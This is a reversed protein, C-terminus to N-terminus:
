QRNDRASPSAARGCRLLTVPHTSSALKGSPSVAWSVALRPTRRVHGDHRDLQILLPRTEHLRVACVMLIGAILEAVADPDREDRCRQWHAQREHAQGQCSPHERETPAK